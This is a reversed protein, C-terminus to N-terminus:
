GVRSKDLICHAAFRVDRDPFQVHPSSTMNSKLTLGNSSQDLFGNNRM